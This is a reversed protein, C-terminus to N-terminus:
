EYKKALDKHLEILETNDIEDVPRLMSNWGEAPLLYGCDGDDKLPPKAFYSQRYECPKFRYRACDNKKSCGDGTCMTYDVM